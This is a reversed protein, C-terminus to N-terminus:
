CTTSVTRLDPSDSKLVWARFWWATGVYRNYKYACYTSLFCPFHRHLDRLIPGPECTRLLHYINNNHLVIRARSRVTYPSQKSWWYDGFGSARHLNPCDATVEWLPYKLHMPSDSDRASPNRTAMIVSTGSTKLLPFPLSPLCQIRKLGVFCLDSGGSVWVTSANPFM